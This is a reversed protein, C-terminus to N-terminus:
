LMPVPINYITESVSKGCKGSSSGSIANSELKSKEVVHHRSIVCPVFQFATDRVSRVYRSCSKYHFPPPEIRVPDVAQLDNSLLPTPSYFYDIRLELAKM